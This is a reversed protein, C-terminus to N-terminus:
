IWKQRWVFVVIGITLLIYTILRAYGAGIVGFWTLFIYSLGMLLIFRILNMVMIARAKLRINQLSTFLHHITVFLSSVAIIRLLDFAALYEEGFLRLFHDGLLFIGLVAPFLIAYTGALNRYVGERLKIGHSGEVFFSTSMAHPIILVFNGIAFAVYYLAANEPNLLNLIVIPMIYTPINLFLNALYNFSSFSFTKRTFEWDIHPSLTVYSRIALLAFVAAALNAFGFSYFVGLSGFFVLPLLLPLRVGMILNQILKFDAKRFALLANGTIYTVSNVIVFLIFLLAYNRIFAIEPSIQEIAALYIISVIIATLSTIWLCSNFVRSPDHSPMFRIIATDFGLHSFTMVLGLSSILATAIGVEGVSYTRAALAWFLFGFGVDSYRGLAIYISNRYFPNRLSNGIELITKPLAIDM